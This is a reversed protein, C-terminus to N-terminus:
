RPDKWILTEGTAVDSFNRCRGDGKGTIGGNPACIVNCGKDYLYNYQDCCDSSILYVYKDGYVYRYVSAPPNYKPVQQIAEIKGLICPPIKPDSNKNCSHSQLLTIIVGAFLIKM